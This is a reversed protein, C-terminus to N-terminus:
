RLYVATSWDRVPIRDSGFTFGSIHENMNVFSTEPNMESKYDTVQPVADEGTM